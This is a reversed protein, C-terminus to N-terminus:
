IERKLINKRRMRKSLFLKKVFLFFFLIIIIISLHFAIKKTIVSIFHSQMKNINNITTKRKKRKEKGGDYMCLMFLLCQLTCQDYKEEM